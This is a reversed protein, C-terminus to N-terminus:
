RPTAGCVQDQDCIREAPNSFIEFFARLSEREDVQEDDIQFQPLVRVFRPIAGEVSTVAVKMSTCLQRM